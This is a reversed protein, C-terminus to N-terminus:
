SLSRRSWKQQEVESCKKELLHIKQTFLEEKDKVARDAFDNIAKLSKQLSKGEEEKHQIEQRTKGLEKQRETREVAAAVSRLSCIRRQDTRCFLRMVEDHRPCDNEQLDKTPEVLKHKQLPAVDRHPQLHSDCDSVRCDLCSKIAKQKRGTCIDCAM